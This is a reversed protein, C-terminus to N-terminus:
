AAIPQDIWSRHWLELMALNWLLATNDARMQLHDSLLREVEPQQLLGRETTRGDLLVGEIWPRLDGRFWEGIPIGFGAKRRNVIEDPLGRRRALERLPWKLTGRRLKLRAPLRAAYEQVRYDLLPSRVELGHAMSMRDVKILVSGPLYTAVDLSTYVDVGDREPLALVGDWACRSGGAAELFDPRCLRELADPTFHSM